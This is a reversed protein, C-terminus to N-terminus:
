VLGEDIRYREQLYANMQYWIEVNRQDTKTKKLPFLGGLGERTYNRLMMNQVIDRVFITGNAHEWNDDSYELLGLNNCLEWFWEKCYEQSDWEMTDMIDDIRVAIGILAELVSCKNRLLVTMEYLGLNKEDIYEQRLNEGDKIRNDDNPVKWIFPITHLKELLLFYRKKRKKLLPESLWSFYAFLIDGDSPVSPYSVTGVGEETLPKWSHNEEYTSLLDKNKGM